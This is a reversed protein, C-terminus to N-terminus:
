AAYEAAREARTSNGIRGYGARQVFAEGASEPVGGLHKGGGTERVREDGAARTGFAHQGASESRTAAKGRPQATNRAPLFDASSLRAVKWWGREPKPAASTVPRPATASGGRGSGCGRGRSSNTLAHGPTGPCGGRGGRRNWLFEGGGARLDARLREANM